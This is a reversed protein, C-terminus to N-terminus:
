FWCWWCATTRERRASDREVPVYALAFDNIDRDGTDNVILVAMECGTQEDVYYCNGEIADYEYDLLVYVEDTVYYDLDPIGEFRPDAKPFLAPIVLMVVILIVIITVVLGFIVKAFLKRDMSM